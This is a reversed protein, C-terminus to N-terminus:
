NFGISVPKRLRIHLKNVSLNYNIFNVVVTLAISKAKNITKEPHVTIPSMNLVPITKPIKKTTITITIIRYM